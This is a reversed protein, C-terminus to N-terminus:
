TGEKTWTPIPKDEVKDLLDVKKRLELQKELLSRLTTEEDPTLFSCGGERSFTGKENKHKWKLKKPRFSSRGMRKVTKSSPKVVYGRRPDFKVGVKASAGKLSVDAPDLTRNKVPLNSPVPHTYSDNGAFLNLVKMLVLKQEDTFAESDNLFMLADYTHFESARMRLINEISEKLMQKKTPKPRDSANWEALSRETVVVPKTLDPKRKM